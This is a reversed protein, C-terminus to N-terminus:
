SRNECRRSPRRAVDCHAAWNKVIEGRIHSWPLGGPTAAFSMIRGIVEDDAFPMMTSKTADAPVLLDAMPRMPLPSWTALAVGQRVRPTRPIPSTPIPPM